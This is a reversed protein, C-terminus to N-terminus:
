IDLMKAGSKADRPLFFDPEPIELLEGNKPKVNTTDVALLLGLRSCAYYGSKHIEPLKIFNSAIRIKLKGGDENQKGSGDKEKRM